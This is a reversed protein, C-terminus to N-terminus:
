RPYSVGWGGWGERGTLSLLWTTHLYIKAAGGRKAECERVRAEVEAAVGLVLLGGRQGLRAAGAAGGRLQRGGGNTEDAGRM